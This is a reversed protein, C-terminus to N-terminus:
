DMSSRYLPPTHIYEVEEGYSLVRKCGYIHPLPWTTASRLLKVSQGTFHACKDFVAAYAEFTGYPYIM